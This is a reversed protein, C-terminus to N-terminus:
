ATWLNLVGNNVNHQDSYVINWHGFSSPLPTCHQHSVPWERRGQNSIELPVSTSMLGPDQYQSDISFRNDEKWIFCLQLISRYGRYSYRTNGREKKLEGPEEHAIVATCLIVQHERRRKPFFHLDLTLAKHKVM